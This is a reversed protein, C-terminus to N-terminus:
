AHSHSSYSDPYTSTSIPPSPYCTCRPDHIVKKKRIDLKSCLVCYRGQFRQHCLITQEENYDCEEEMDSNNEETDEEAEDDDIPIWTLGFMPLVVLLVKDIKHNSWKKLIELFLSPAVVLGAGVGFGVGISVYTWDFKVGFDTHVEPVKEEANSM